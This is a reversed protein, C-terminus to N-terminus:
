GELLREAHHVLIEEAESENVQGLNLDSGNGKVSWLRSTILISGQDSSPMADEPDFGLEDRGPEKFERDVNDIILLWKRNKPLSLWQLVGQMVVNVDVEASELMEVVSAQLQVTPIEKAIKLFSQKLSDRTSGDIWFIASYEDQHLRAYQAALKTKGMGGPGRIVFVSRRSKENLM